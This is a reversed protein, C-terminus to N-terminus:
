QLGASPLEWSSHRADLLAVTEATEGVRLVTRHGFPMKALLPFEMRIAGAPLRLWSLTVVIDDDQGAGGSLSQEARPQLAGESSVNVWKAAAATLEAPRITGPLSTKAAPMLTEFDSRAFTLKVELRPGTRTAQAVSLGPDHAVALTATLLLGALMRFFQSRMM